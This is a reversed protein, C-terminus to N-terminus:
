EGLLLLPDQNAQGIQRSVPTDDHFGFQIPAASKKNEVLHILDQGPLAMGLLLLVRPEDFETLVQAFHSSAL